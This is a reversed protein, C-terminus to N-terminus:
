PDVLELGSPVEAPILDTLTGLYPSSLAELFAVLDAIESGSLPTPERVEPDLTDMVQGLVTTDRHVQNRVEPELVFPDFGYLSAEADLHQRIAAELDVASGNHLWPGTEAVNRLPPTRFAFTAEPGANSRHAAGLDVSSNVTPGRSM